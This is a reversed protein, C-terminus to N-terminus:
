GIKVKLLTILNRLTGVTMLLCLGCISTSLMQIVTLARGRGKAM